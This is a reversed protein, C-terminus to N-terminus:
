PVGEVKAAILVGGALALAGAATHLLTYNEGTPGLALLLPAALPAIM